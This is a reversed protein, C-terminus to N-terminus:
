SPRSLDYIIEALTEWMYHALTYDIWLRFCRNAIERQPIIACSAGAVRTYLVQSVPARELEVGCTQALVPLAYDGEIVLTISQQEVRYVGSAQPLAEEFRHRLSDESTSELILESGGVRALIGDNGVPLCDYVSDPLEFEHFNAWTALDPGKIGLKILNSPQKMVASIEEPATKVLQDIPNSSSM